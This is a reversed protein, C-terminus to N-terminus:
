KINIGTVNKYLRFYRQAMKDDTYERLLLNYANWALHGALSNDELLKEVQQALDDPEDRNFLLGNVGPEIVEPIGGTNAGVVPTKFAFAELLVQGFGERRSPLVCIKARRYLTPMEEHTFDKQDSSGLRLVTEVSRDRARQELKTRDDVSGAGAIAFILNEGSLRKKLTAAADIFTEPGKHSDLRTPCLILKHADELNLRHLVSHKNPRSSLWRVPIGHPIHEIMDEPQVGQEQLRHKYAKSPAVFKDAINFDLMTQLFCDKVDRQPLTQDWEKPAKHVTVILPVKFANKLMLGVLVSEFDHAHILDPRIQSWHRLGYRLAEELPVDGTSIFYDKEQPLGGAVSSAPTDSGKASIPRGREWPIRHVTLHPPTGEAQQSAGTTLIHVHCIRRQDVRSKTLRSLAYALYYVHTAVGGGAPPYAKTILLVDLKNKKM